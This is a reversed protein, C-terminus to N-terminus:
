GSVSGYAFCILDIHGGMILDVLDRVFHHLFEVTAQIDEDSVGTNGPSLASHESTFDRVISLHELNVDVAYPITRTSCTGYPTALCLLSGVDMAVFKLIVAITTKHRCATHTPM